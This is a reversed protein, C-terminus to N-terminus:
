KSDPRAPRTLDSSTGDNSGGNMGRMMFLMMLPCVLAVLVYAWPAISFRGWAGLGVVVVLTALAAWGIYKSHIM